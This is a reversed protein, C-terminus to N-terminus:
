YPPLSGSKRSNLFHPNGMMWLGYGDMRCIRLHPNRWSTGSINSTHNSDLWSVQLIMGHRTETTIYNAWASRSTTLGRLVQPPPVGELIASSWTKYIPTIRIGVQFSGGLLQALHYQLWNHILQELWHYKSYTTTEFMNKIKVGFRPSSKWNSEYKKLDTSAVLLNTTPNLGGGRFVWSASERTVVAPYAFVSVPASIHSSGSFLYLGGLILCLVQFHHNPLTNEKEFLHNEPEM